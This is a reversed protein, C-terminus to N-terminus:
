IKKRRPTKQNSETATTQSRRKALTLSPLRHGPHCAQRTSNHTQVPTVFFLPQCRSPFRSLFHSVSPFPMVRALAHFHYDIPAIYYRPSAPERTIRERWHRVCISRCARAPTFFFQLSLSLICSPIPERHSPASSTGAHAPLRPNTVKVIRNRM